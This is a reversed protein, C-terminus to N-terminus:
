NAFARQTFALGMIQQSLLERVSFKIRDPDRYDRFCDVFSSIIGLRQEVERLLLGGGDSSIPEASFDARVSRAQHSQFLSLQENCQTM